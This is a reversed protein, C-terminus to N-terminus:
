VSAEHPLALATLATMGLLAPMLRREEHPLALAALTTEVLTPM